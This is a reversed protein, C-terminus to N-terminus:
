GIIMGTLLLSRKACHGTHLRIAEDIIETSLATRFKIGHNRNAWSKRYPNEVSILIANYPNVIVGKAM